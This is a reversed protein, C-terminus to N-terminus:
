SNPSCLKLPRALGPRLITVSETRRVLIPRAIGWVEACSTRSLHRRHASASLGNCRHRASSVFRYHATCRHAAFRASRCDTDSSRNSCPTGCAPEAAHDPVREEPQLAPLQLDLHPGHAAFRCKACTDFVYAQWLKHVKSSYTPVARAWVTQVDARMCTVYLCVSSRVSAPLHGNWRTSCWSHWEPWYSLVAFGGVREPTWVDVMGRCAPRTNAYDSWRHQKALTRLSILPRTPFLASVRM